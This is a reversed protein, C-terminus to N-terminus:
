PKPEAGEPADDKTKGRSVQPGEEGSGDDEGEQKVNFCAYYRAPDTEKSTCDAIPKLEEVDRYYKYTTIAYRVEGSPDSGYRDVKGKISPDISLLADILTDGQRLQRSASRLSWRLLQEARYQRHFAGILIQRDALKDKYFAFSTRMGVTVDPSFESPEYHDMKPNDNLLYLFTKSQRTSSSSFSFAPSM